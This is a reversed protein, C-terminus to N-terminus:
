APANARAMLGALRRMEAVDGALAFWYSPHLEQNLVVSDPYAPESLMREWDLSGWGIPLHLDGAGYALADAPLAGPMATSDGFCDNLHLHCALPALTAIETMLDAGTRHCQLAAHAFDLTARLAPHGVARIEAALRGPLATARGDHSWITELCIVVGHEEAFEALRALAERQRGYAAEVAGADGGALGCHLVMHRAGLRATLEICARTVAEHRPLREPADMLNVCLTAHTTYDLARGNTQRRFHALAPEVIRAQAILRTAFFPIEVTDVGLAEAEDLYAGPETLEFNGPWLTYGIRYRAM